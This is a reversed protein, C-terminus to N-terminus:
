AHYIQITCFDHKGNKEVNSHDSNRPDISTPMYAPAGRHVNSRTRSSPRRCCARARARQAEPTLLGQPTGIPTSRTSTTTSVEGVRRPGPVISVSPSSRGPPPPRVRSSSSSTSAPSVQRARDDAARGTSCVSGPYTFLAGPNEGTGEM